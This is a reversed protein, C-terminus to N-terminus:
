PRYMWWQWLAGGLLVAVGVGVIRLNGFALGALAVLTGAAMAKGGSKLLM